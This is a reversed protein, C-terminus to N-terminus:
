RPGGCSPKPVVSIGLDFGGSGTVRFVTPGLLSFFFFFFRGRGGELVSQGAERAVRHVWKSPPRRGDGSGISAWGGGTSVDGANPFSFFFFPPFFFIFFPFFFVIRGMRQNKKRFGVLSPDHRLGCRDTAITKREAIELVKSERKLTRQM